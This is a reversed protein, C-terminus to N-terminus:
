TPFDQLASITSQPWQKVNLVGEFAVFPKVVTSRKSEPCFYIIVLPYNCKSV